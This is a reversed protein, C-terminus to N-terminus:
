SVRRLGEPVHAASPIHRGTWRFFEEIAFKTKRTAARYENVNQDLTVTPWTAQIIAIEHLIASVRKALDQKVAPDLRCDPGSAHRKLEWLQQMVLRREGTLIRRRGPDTGRFVDMLRRITDHLRAIQEATADM